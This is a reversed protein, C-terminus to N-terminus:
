STPGVWRLGDSLDWAWGGLTPGQAAVGLGGAWGYNYYNGGSTRQGWGSTGGYWGDAGTVSAMQIKQDSVEATNWNVTAGLFAGGKGKVLARSGKPTDVTVGGSYTFSFTGGQFNVNACGMFCASLGVNVHKWGESAMYRGVPAALAIAAKTEAPLPLANLIGGLISSKNNEKKRWEAKAKAAALLQARKMSDLRYREEQARAQQARTQAWYSNFSRTNHRVLARYKSTTHGRSNTYGQNRYWSKRVKNNGFGKKTVEDYLMEGTPDSATVPTNNAYAYANAQLPNAPDLLPDPSIFAGLAPDYERAGIHTLGTDDLTGGVFGRTGPFDPATGTPTKPRPAGFPLQKRRIVAQGVALSVALMATGQHDSVLFHVPSDPTRVAVTEGDHTYYRTGTVTGDPNLHLENGEPLYLTATDDSGTALLRNGDTDYVYDTTTGAETATALHGEDDWTYTQDATGGTRTTM